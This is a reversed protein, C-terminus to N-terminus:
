EVQLLFFFQRLGSSLFYLLKTYDNQISACNTKMSQIVSRRGSQQTQSAITVSVSDHGYYLLAPHCSHFGFGWLVAAIVSNQRSCLRSILGQFLAAQVDCSLNLTM